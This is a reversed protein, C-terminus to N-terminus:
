KQESIIVSLVVETFETGAITLNNKKRRTKVSFTRQAHQRMSPAHKCFFRIDSQM